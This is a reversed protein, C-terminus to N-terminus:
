PAAQSLVALFLRLDCANLTEIVSFRIQDCEAWVRFPQIAVQNPQSNYPMLLTLSIGDSTSAGSTGLGIVSTSRTAAAQPEIAVGLPLSFLKSGTLYFDLSGRVYAETAGSIPQLSLYNYLRRGKLVPSVSMILQDNAPRVNAYATASNWSSYQALTYATPTGPSSGTLAGFTVKWSIIEAQTWEATETVPFFGGAFGGESPM